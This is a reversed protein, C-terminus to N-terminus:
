AASRNPLHRLRKIEEIPLPHFFYFGQVEDCSNARLFDLQQESEVGEALV